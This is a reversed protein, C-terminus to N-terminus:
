IQTVWHAETQNLHFPALRNSIEETFNSCNCLSSVIDALCEIALDGFVNSVDRNSKWVKEGEEKVFASCM